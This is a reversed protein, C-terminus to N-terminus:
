GLAGDTAGEGGHPTNPLARRWAMSFLVIAFLFGTASPAAATGWAGGWVSAAGGSFAGVVFLMLMVATSGAQRDMAMLITHGLGCVVFVPVSWALVRVPAAAGAYAGGFVLWV